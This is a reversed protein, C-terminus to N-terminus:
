LQYSCTYVKKGTCIAKTASQESARTVFEQSHSFVYACAKHHRHTHIDSHLVRADLKSFFFSLFLTCLTCQVYIYYMYLVSQASVAHCYEYIPKTATKTMATCQAPTSTELNCRNGELVRWGYNAGATIQKEILLLYYCRV